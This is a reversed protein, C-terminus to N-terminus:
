PLYRWTQRHRIASINAPTVGFEAAIERQNRGADIQRRIATVSEPTLITKNNVRGSKNPVGCVATGHQSRDAANEARTAWRLNGQKNNSPAGDRHAVEHDASPRAGHWSECVLQHIGAAQKRGSSHLDVRLYGDADHYPTLLKGAPLHRWAVRRRVRGLSSVEYNPNRSVVRWEENM